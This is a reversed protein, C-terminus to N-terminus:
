RVGRAWLGMSVVHVSASVMFAVPVVLLATTLGAGQALGAGAAVVTCGAACRFLLSRRPSFQESRARRGRNRAAFLLAFAAYVLCLSVWDLM